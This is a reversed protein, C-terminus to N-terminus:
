RRDAASQLDAKVIADWATEVPDPDPEPATLEAAIGRMRAVVAQLSPYRPGYDRNIHTALKRIDSAAAICRDEYINM